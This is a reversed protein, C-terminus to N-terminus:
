QRMELFKGQGPDHADAPVFNLKLRDKQLTYGTFTRRTSDDLSFSPEFEQGELMGHVRSVYREQMDPPFMSLAISTLTEVPMRLQGGRVARLQLRAKGDGYTQVDFAVSVVQNMKDGNYRFMLVPYGNDNGLRVDSIGSPMQRGTSRLWEPMGFELWDNAEDLSMEFSIREGDQYAAAPVNAGSARQRTKPSQPAAATKKQTSASQAPPQSGTRERWLTQEGRREAEGSRSVRVDDEVVDDPVFFRPRKRPPAEAVRM